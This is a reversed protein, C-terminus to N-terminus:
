INLAQLYFNCQVAQIAACLTAIPDGRVADLFAEHEDETLPERAYDINSMASIVAKCALNVIHLFCRVM